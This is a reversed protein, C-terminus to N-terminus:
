LKISKYYEPFYQKLIDPQQLLKGLFDNGTWYEYKYKHSCKEELREFLETLGSTPNKRCILLYGNANYSHILTPINIQNVQSPGVNTKHFKAQVVWIRNFLTIEDSFHLEVLIDRGGDTGVGSQKVKVSSVLSDSDESLKEFYNKILDEFQDADKIEDLSLSTM